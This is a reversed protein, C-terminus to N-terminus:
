KSVWRRIRETLSPSKRDLSPVTSSLKTLETGQTSSTNSELEALGPPQDVENEAESIEEDSINSFLGTEASSQRLEKLATGRSVLGSEEAGIITEATTKAINSKDLDSMQWLSNFTFNLDDPADEGFTSRWLVKILLDWGPRLSSEQQSNVNDYYTSLDAEGSSNLGAPSQGFLRVLPIGCAGSLQQGFQLMMDSLGAFSYSTTQFTDNKDLLTLGENAQFSRMMEFQAELGMQAKGGAAIIERLNEIGITRNNAREILNAASLSASDFSILRDWLRELISEGWMWETIAQFYPLKIGIHRIVRSHHVQIQGTMTDATPDLANLNNVIQYFEPMGMEPGSQIVRTMVPNLMWRDYVVLGLFQDKSITEVDLPTAMDQGEIQLIAVSGGYLKGWKINEETSRWLGLRSIETHLKQLKDEGKTTTIDLGEKTMDQAFTDIVQGVIWSGRYAAELQVRNRTLLNFGYYGASLMNDNNMGLKSVFNNFGDEARAVADMGKFVATQKLEANLQDREQVWDPKKGPM